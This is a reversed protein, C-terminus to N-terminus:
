ISAAVDSGIQRWRWCIKTTVFGNAGGFQTYSFFRASSSQQAVAAPLDLLCWTM